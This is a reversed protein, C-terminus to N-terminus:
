KSAIVLPLKFSTKVPIGRKRAPYIQPLQQISELLWSELQPLKKEILASTKLSDLHPKGTSNISVFLMMKEQISDSLIVKKQQLYRYIKRTFEQEFCAKKQSIESLHECEKFSPYVEVENWNFEKLEDEIIQNSSIKQTEFNQCGLCFILILLRSYKM